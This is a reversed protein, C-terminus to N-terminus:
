RQKWHETRQEQGPSGIPHNNHAINYHTLKKKVAIFGWHSYNSKSVNCANLLLCAEKLVSIQYNHPTAGWLM